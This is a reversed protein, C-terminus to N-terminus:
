AYGVAANLGRLASPEPAAPRAPFSTTEWRWHPAFLAEAMSRAMNAEARQMLAELLGLPDDTALDTEVMVPAFQMKPRPLGHRIPTSAFPHARAM